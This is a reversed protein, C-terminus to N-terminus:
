GLVPPPSPPPCGLAFLSGELTPSRTRRDGCVASAAHRPLLLESGRGLAAGSRPPAPRPGCAGLPRALGRWHSGRSAAISSCQAADRHPCRSGDMKGFDRIGSFYVWRIWREGRGLVRVSERESNDPRAKSQFFFPCPRHISGSLVGGRWRSPLCKADKRDCFLPFAGGLFVIAPASPHHRSSSGAGWGLPLGPPDARQYLGTSSLTASASPRACRRSRTRLRSM